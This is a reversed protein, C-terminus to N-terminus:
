SALTLCMAQASAPCAHAFEESQQVAPTVASRAVPVFGRRAFYSAATETLLYVQTVGQAQALTLAADVLRSGVARDRYAPDVAVSRLLAADGYVELAASGVIRGEAKAALVTAAHEALGDEPLACRALLDLVTGLEGTTVPAITLSTTTTLVTEGTMEHEGKREGRATCGILVDIFM